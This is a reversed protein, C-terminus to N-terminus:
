PVQVGAHVSMLHGALMVEGDNKNSPEFREDLDHNCIETFINFSLQEQAPLQSIKNHLTKHSVGLIEAIKTKSFKLSM